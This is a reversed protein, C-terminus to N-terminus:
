IVILSADSRPRSNSSRAPGAQAQGACKPTVLMAARDGYPHRAPRSIASTMCLKSCDLDLSLVAHVKNIVEPATLKGGALHDDLIAQVEALPKVFAIMSCLTSILLGSLFIRHM